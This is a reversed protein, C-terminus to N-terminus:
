IKKNYPVSPAFLLLLLLPGTFLYWPSLGTDRLRRIIIGITPLFTGAWYINALYFNEPLAVLIFSICLTTIAFCSFQERTATSNFDAYFLIGCKYLHLTKLVLPKITRLLIIFDQLLNLLNHAIKQYTASAHEKLTSKAGYLDIRNECINCIIVSPPLLANCWPCPVLEGNKQEHYHLDLCQASKCGYTACGKNDEWCEKHYKTKCDPCDVSEDPPMFRYCCVPCLCSVDTSPAFSEDAVPKVSSGADTIDDINKGTAQAGCKPCFEITESGRIDLTINCCQCVWTM